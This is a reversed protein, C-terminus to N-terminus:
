RCAGGPVAHLVLNDRHVFEADADSGLLKALEDKHKGLLAACEASGYNSLGRAIVRGEPDRIEVTDGRKFNGAIRVVGSPLLSKGHKEVAAAAGADVILAGATRAFFKIWCKRSQLRSRRPCFLTGVDDGEAIHELIGEQRGDAIWLHAGAETVLTAARLKSIMGGISMAGNDTDGASAIMEPTIRDVLAIREGLSGDANRVRLGQETTLIVTLEAGLMAGLMGALTDNDGFKLEDVSVSDNENIVPLM